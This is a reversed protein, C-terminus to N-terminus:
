NMSRNRAVPQARAATGGDAAAGIEAGTTAEADRLRHFAWALLALVGLTMVTNAAYKAAYSPNGLPEVWFSTVANVVLAAGAVTLVHKRGRRTRGSWFLLLAGLLGLALVDVAAGVVLDELGLQAASNSRV